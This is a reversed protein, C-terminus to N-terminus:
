AVRRVGGEPTPSSSAEWLASMPAVIDVSVGDTLGEAALLGFVVIRDPGGELVYLSQLIISAASFLAGGM